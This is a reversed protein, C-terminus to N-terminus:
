GYAAARARLAGRPRARQDILAGIRRFGLRRLTRRTEPSSACRRSRCGRCPAESEQGAALIMGPSAHFGRRAGLRRGRDRRRRGAGAPRLARAAASIPLCSRRASRVSSLARSTSFFGDAGNKEDWPSAAPTYRTAWLALRRLAADDAAPDAAAGALSEAQRARGRDDRGNQNRGGRPPTLRRHVAHGVRRRRPRLGRRILGTRRGSAQTALFACSRRPGALQFSVRCSRVGGVMGGAATAAGSPTVKWGARTILGFRDRAAEARSAGARRAASAEGAQPPRRLVLPLGAAGAALHLRQSSKLDLRAIMGAVAASRGACRRKWPGVVGAKRSEDRGPDAPGSRFRPPQPRHGHPRGHDRLRAVHSSCCRRRRPVLARAAGRPFRLRAAHRGPNAARARALRWRSAARRCIPMSPALGLAPRAHRRRRSEM